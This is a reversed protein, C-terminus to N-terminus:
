RILDLVDAPRALVIDGPEASARPNWGALAFRVRADAACTRDHATDGVFVVQEPALELATLAPELTKPRGDFDESFLALAPQWGLRSLEARGSVQAKNSCVAWRDLAALMDPVGAFPVVLRDDYRELYDEVSVGAHSCAEGLPLGLAPLRERPVGLAAFPAMLAADSDVLTGDLDFLATTARSVGALM